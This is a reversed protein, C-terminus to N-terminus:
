HPRIASATTRGLRQGFGGARAGATAWVPAGAGRFTAASRSCDATCVIVILMLTALPGDCAWEDKTASGGVVRYRAPASAVIMLLGGLLGVNKWFKHIAHLTAATMSTWFNHVSLRWLPSLDGVGVRRARGYGRDGFPALLRSVRKCSCAWQCRCNKFRQLRRVKM